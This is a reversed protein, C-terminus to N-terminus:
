ELLPRFTVVFVDNESMNTSKKRECIRILRCIYELFIASHDIRRNDPHMPRVFNRNGRHRLFNVWEVSIRFHGCMDLMHEVIWREWWTTNVNKNSACESQESKKRYFNCNCM